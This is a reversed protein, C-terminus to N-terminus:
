PVRRSRGRPRGAGKAPSRRIVFPECLEVITDLRRMPHCRSCRSMFPKRLRNLDLARDNISQAGLDLALFLCPYSLVLGSGVYAPLENVAAGSSAESEQGLV